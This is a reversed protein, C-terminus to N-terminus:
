RRNGRSIALRKQFEVLKAYSRLIHLRERQIGIFWFGGILFAVLYAFVEM